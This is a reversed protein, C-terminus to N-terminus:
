TEVTTREFSMENRYLNVDSNYANSRPPQSRAEHMQPRIFFNLKVCEREFLEFREQEKRAEEEAVRKKELEEKERDAAILRDRVIQRKKVTADSLHKTRDFDVAITMALNREGEKRVLKMGRFEDMAKVFGVYESFQVYRCVCVGRPLPLFPFSFFSSFFVFLVCLSVSIRKLFAIAVRNPMVM